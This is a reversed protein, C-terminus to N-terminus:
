PLRRQHQLLLQDGALWALGSIPTYEKLAGNFNDTCNPHGFYGMDEYYRTTCALNFTDHRGVTDQVIEVLANRDKDFFKSHLGPTPYAAGNMTRTTTSDLGHGKGEDLAKRNFALFDSCQRGQLTSSRSTNARAFRSARPARLMSASTSALSPSRSPFGPAIEIFRPNARQIFILVDSPPTQEWVVM